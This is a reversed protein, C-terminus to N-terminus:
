TYNHGVVTQFRCHFRLPETSDHRNSHEALLWEGGRRGTGDTEQEAGMVHRRGVEEDLRFPEPSPM